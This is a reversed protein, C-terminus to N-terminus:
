VGFSRTESVGLLSLLRLRGMGAIQAYNAIIQAFNAILLPHRGMRARSNFGGERFKKRSIESIVAWWGGFGESYSMLPHAFIGWAKPSRDKVVSRVVLAALTM